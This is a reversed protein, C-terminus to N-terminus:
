IGQLPVYLERDHDREQFGKWDNVDMDTKMPPDIYFAPLLKSAMYTIAVLISKDRSESPTHHFRIVEIINDPLGWHKALEAGIESHTTEFLEAEIAEIPRNPQSALQDIFQDCLQPSLNSLVFFGLDHLLGALYVDEDPPQRSAPMHKALAVMTLAVSLCHKWLSDIDLKSSSKALSSLMAFGLATMKVRKSGLVAEADHLTMIQRGLGYLPSNSLGILKAMLAPDKEILEYLEREGRETLMKIRLIKQAIKPIPPLQELKGLMAKLEAKSDM